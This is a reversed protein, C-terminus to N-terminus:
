YGDFKEWHHGSNFMTMFEQYKGEPLLITVDNFANYSDHIQCIREKKAVVTGGCAFHGLNKIVKERMPLSNESSNKSLDEDIPSELSDIESLEVFTKKSESLTLDVMIPIKKMPLTPKYIASEKSSESPSTESILPSHSSLEFLQEDIEKIPERLKPLESLEAAAIDAATRKYYIPSPLVESPKSPKPNESLEM